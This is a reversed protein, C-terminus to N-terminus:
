RFRFEGSAETVNQDTRGAITYGLLVILVVPTTAQFTAVLVDVFSEMSPVLSVKSSIYEGIPPGLLIQRPICDSRGYM